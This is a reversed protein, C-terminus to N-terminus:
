IHTDSNCNCKLTTTTNEHPFQCTEVVSLDPEVSCERGVKAVFRRAPPCRQPRWPPPPQRQLATCRTASPFFPRSYRRHLRCCLRWRRWPSMLRPPQRSPCFARQESPVLAAVRRGRLVADVYTSLRSKASLWIWSFTLSSRHAVARLRRGGRRYRGDCVGQREEEATHIRDTTM